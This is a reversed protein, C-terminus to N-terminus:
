GDKKKGIVIWRWTYQLILGIVGIILLFGFTIVDNRGERAVFVGFSMVLASAWIFCVGVRYIIGLLRDMLVAMLVSAGM